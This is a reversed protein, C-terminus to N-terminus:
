SSEYDSGGTTVALDNERTNPRRLAVQTKGFNCYMPIVKPRLIIKGFIESAIKPKIFTLIKRIGREM